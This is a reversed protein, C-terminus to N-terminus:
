PEHPVVEVERQHWPCLHVVQPQGARPQSRYAFAVTERGADEACPKCPADLEPKRM